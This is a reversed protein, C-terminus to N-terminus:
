QKIIEIKVFEEKSEEQKREEKKLEKQAPEDGYLDKTKPIPKTFPIFETGVFPQLVAPVKIGEKTQYNELICCLTRETACLTGNLM